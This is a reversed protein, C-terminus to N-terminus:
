LAYGTDSLSQPSGERTFICAEALISVPHELRLLEDTLSNEMHM